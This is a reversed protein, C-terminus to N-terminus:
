KLLDLESSHLTENYFKALKHKGRKYTWESLCMKKREVSRGMQFRAETFYKKMPFHNYKMNKLIDAQLSRELWRFLIQSCPSDARLPHFSVM